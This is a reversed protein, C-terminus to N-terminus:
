AQLTTPEWYNPRTEVMEIVKEIEAQPPLVPTLKPWRIMTTNKKMAKKAKSM